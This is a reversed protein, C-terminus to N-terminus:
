GGAARLHKHSPGTVLSAELHRAIAARMTAIPAPRKHWWETQRAAQAVLMGLGGIARCGAARAERLLRTDPPNYVLDYVLRGDLHAAPIPTEDTGPFTGVSTANVLVDWSGREPLGTQAQGGALAAVEAAREFRRGYVTVRAGSSALAVAVSRAAGGCGLVAARAGTLDEHGSLPALFGEVDTNCGLWEGNQRAVTNVAGVRAAVSDLRHMKGALAVKLPATVSMGRVDLAEAFALVDDPSDSHLPVYAADLGLAAFAANHMAPSLSHDLPSGALGFVSTRSSIARFRYQHLLCALPLQGPAADGAYTWYSGFRAALIRTPLGAPGMGVVVTKVSRDRTLALLHLCDSLRRVHVAVKVVEAGTARMAACRSALDAPVGSLDHMSLVVGTGGRRRVLDDFGSRWEIDAYAAGLAIAEGLIAHREEESGDFRGGEWAPRCTVIIPTTCGALAARVDLDRVGDLRLEILDAGRVADRRLRLQEM